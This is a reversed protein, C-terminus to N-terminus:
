TFNYIKKLLSTFLYDTKTKFSIRSKGSIKRMFEHAQNRRLWWNKGFKKFNSHTEGKKDQFYFTLNKDLLRFDNLISSSIAALRFDLTLMSFNKDNIINRYKKYFKRQFSICSGAIPFSPWIDKKNKNKIMKKLLIQKNKSFYYIPLDFVINCNKNRDFYKVIEKVKNKKFFDDADLLLIYKGKSRSFAKKYSNLQYYTNFKGLNKRNRNKFSKIGKIRKAIEYSNDKSGDDYFIIEINNYTQKKCSNICREVYKEKNYSAILISVLPKKQM